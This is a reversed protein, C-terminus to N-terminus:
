EITIIKSTKTAPKLVCEVILTKNANNGIIAINGYDDPNTEDLNNNVIQVVVESSTWPNMYNEKDFYDKFISAMETSTQNLSIFTGSTNQIKSKSGSSILSIENKIQKYVNDCQGNATREKAFTIYDKYQPIGVAALIGIIGVVVLLEILTFAKKLQNNKNLKFSIKTQINYKM